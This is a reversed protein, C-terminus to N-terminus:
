ASITESQPNDVVVGDDEADPYRPGDDEARGYAAQVPEPDAQAPKRYNGGSPRGMAKRAAGGKGLPPLKVGAKLARNRLTTVVHGTLGMDEEIQVPYAGAKFRRVIEAERAQFEEVTVGAQKAMFRTIKQQFWDQQDYPVPYVAPEFDADHEESRLPLDLGAERATHLWRWLQDEPFKTAQAIRDMPAGAKRMEVFTRRAALYADLSKGLKMSAKEMAAQGQGTLESHFLPFTKLAPKPDAEADPFKLGGARAETIIRTVDQRPAGLQKAIAKASRGAMRLDIVKEELTKAAGGRVGAPEAAIALPAVAAAGGRPQNLAVLLAAETAAPAASSGGSYAEAMAQVQLVTAARLPGEPIRSFADLLDSAGPMILFRAMTVPDITM